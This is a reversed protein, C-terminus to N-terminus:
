IAIQKCFPLIIILVWHWHLLLCKVWNAPHSFAEQPGVSELPWWPEGPVVGVQIEEELFNKLHETNQSWLREKISLFLGFYINRRIKSLTFPGRGLHNTLNRFPLTCLKVITSWPYFCRSPITMSKEWQTFNIVSYIKIQKLTLKVIGKLQEICFISNGWLNLHLWIKGKTKRFLGNRCFFFCIEEYNSGKIRLHVCVIYIFYSM